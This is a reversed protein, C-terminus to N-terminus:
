DMWGNPWLTGVDCVSLVSLVPCAVTRYCLAFRKHPSQKYLLEGSETVNSYQPWVTPHILIFSRMSGRGLGCQTLHPSMDGLLSM